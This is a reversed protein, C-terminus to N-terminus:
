KLYIFKHYLSNTKSSAQLFYVGASLPTGRNDRGDFVIMNDGRLLDRALEKVIRGQHDYIILKLNENTSSKIKILSNKRMPNAMNIVPLRTESNIPQEAISVQINSRYLGAWYTGAYLYNDPNIAMATIHLDELGNSYSRWTFGADSSKFVGNLTGAFLTDTGNTDIALAYVDDLGHYYWHDGYDYSKYVGDSTGAYIINTSQADIKLAYTFGSLGIVITNWTVGFDTTRHLDPNGGTYVINSNNPDIAMAYAWGDNETLNYRTWTFGADTSKCVSMYGYKGGTWFISDSNPDNVVFVGDGYHFADIVFWSAGGTTSM